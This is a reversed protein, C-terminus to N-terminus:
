HGFFIFSISLGRLGDITETDVLELFSVSLVATFM